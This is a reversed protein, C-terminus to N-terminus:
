LMEKEPLTVQRYDKVLNHGSNSFLLVEKSKHDTGDINIRKARCFHRAWSISMGSIQHSNGCGNPDTKVEIIEWLSLARTETNNRLDCHGVKTRGHWVSESAGVRDSDVINPTLLKDDIDIMGTGPNYTAQSLCRILAKNSQFHDGVKM